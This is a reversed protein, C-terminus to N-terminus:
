GEAVPIPVCQGTVTRPTAPPGPVMLVITVPCVGSLSLKLLVRPGARRRLSGQASQACAASAAKQPQSKSPLPFSSRPHLRSLPPVARPPSPQLIPSPLRVPGQVGTWSCWSGRSEESQKWFNESQQTSLSALGGAAQVTGWLLLEGSIGLLRPSSPGTRSHGSAWGSPKRVRPLPPARKPSGEGPFFVLGPGPGM